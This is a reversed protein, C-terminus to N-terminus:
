KTLRTLCILEIEAVTNKEADAIGQHSYKGHGYTAKLKMKLSWVNTKTERGGYRDRTVPKLTLPGINDTNDSRTTGHATNDVRDDKM